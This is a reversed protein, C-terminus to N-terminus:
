KLAFIKKELKRGDFHEKANMVEDIKIRPGLLCMGFEFSRVQARIEEALKPHEEEDEAVQRLTELRKEVSDLVVQLDLILGEYKKRETSLVAQAVYQRLDKEVDVLFEALKQREEVEFFNAPAGSRLDRYTGGHEKFLKYKKKLEMSMKGELFKEGMQGQHFVVMEDFAKWYPWVKKGLSIIINEVEEIGITFDNELHDLAHNIEKKIEEPLLPPLENAMHKFIDVTHKIQSHQVSSM